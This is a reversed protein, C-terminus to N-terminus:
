SLETHLHLVFGELLLVICHFMLQCVSASQLFRASLTGTEVLLLEIFACELQLRSLGVDEPQFLSQFCQLSIRSGFIGQKFGQLRHPERDMHLRAQSIHM